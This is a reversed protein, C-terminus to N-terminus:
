HARWGPAESQRRRHRQPPLAPALRLSGGSPGATAAQVPAALALAIVTHAAEHLAVSLQRRCRPLHRAGAIM